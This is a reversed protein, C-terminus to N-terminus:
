DVFNSDHGTGEIIEAIEQATLLNKDALICLLKGMAKANLVTPAPRDLLKLTYDQICYTIGDVQIRM